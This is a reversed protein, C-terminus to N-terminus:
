DMIGLAISTECPGDHDKPCPMARCGTAYSPAHILQAALIRDGQEGITDWLADNDHNLEALEQKHAVGLALFGDAVQSNTLTGIQKILEDRESVV